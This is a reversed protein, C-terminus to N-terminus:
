LDTNIDDNKEKIYEPLIITFTTGIGEKSKFNISGKHATIINKVIALGMGLGKSKTTFFPQFILPQKDKPIGIGTDTIEVIVSRIDKKQQTIDISLEGGEPMAEHANKLINYFADRLKLRNMQIEPLNDPINVKTKTGNEEFEINLVDLADEMVDKIDGTEDLPIERLYDLQRDILDVAEQAQQIAQDINKAIEDKLREDSIVGDDLRRKIQRIPSTMSRIRNKFEHRVSATMNLYAEKMKLDVMINRRQYYDLYLGVSIIYGLIFILPSLFDLSIHFVSLLTQSFIIHFGILILGYVFTKLLINYRRSIYHIEDTDKKTSIMWESISLSFIYFLLVYLFQVFVNPRFIYNGNILTNVANAKFLFDSIRGNPVLHPEGYKPIGLLILKKKQKELIEPRLIYGLESIKKQKKLIDFDKMVLNVLMKGDSTIPIRLVREKNSDALILFQGYWRKEIGYFKLNYYKELLQIELSTILQGNVSDIALLQIFRYIGDVGTTSYTFGSNEIIRPDFIAPNWILKPIKNKELQIEDFPRFFVINKPFDNVKSFDSFSLDSFVLVGLLNDGSKELTKVVDITLSNAYNANLEILKLEPAIGKTGKMPIISLRQDLLFQEAIELVNLALIIYVFLLIFTNISFIGFLVSNRKLVDYFGNL